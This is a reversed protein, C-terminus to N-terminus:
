VNKKGRKKNWKKDVNEGVEDKEGIEKWLKGRKIKSEEKAKENINGEM